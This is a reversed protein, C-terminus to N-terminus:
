LINTVARAVNEIEENQFQHKLIQSYLLWCHRIWVKLYRPPATMWIRLYPPGTELFM